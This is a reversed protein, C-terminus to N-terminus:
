RIGFQDEIQQIFLRADTPLLLPSQALSDRCCAFEKKAALLEYWHKLSLAFAREQDEDTRCRVVAATAEKERERADKIRVALERLREMGVRIKEKARLQDLEYHRQNEAFIDEVSRPAPALQLGEVAEGPEMEDEALPAPEMEDEALPAPETEGGCDFSDSSNGSPPPADAHSAMAPAAM